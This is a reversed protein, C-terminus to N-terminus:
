GRQNLHTYSVTTQVMGIASDLTGASHANYQVAEEIKRCLVEGQNFGWKDTHFSWYKGLIERNKKLKEAVTRNVAEENQTRLPSLMALQPSQEVYSRVTQEIQVKEREFSVTDVVAFATFVVLLVAALIIGRNTKKWFSLFKMVGGIPVRDRICM